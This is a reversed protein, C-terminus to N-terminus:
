RRSPRLLTITRSTSAVTRTAAVFSLTARLTPHRRLLKLARRNLKLTVTKARKFDCAVDALLTKGSKLRVRGRCAATGPCALKIRVVGTASVRLRQAAPLALTSPVVPAPPPLVVPAPDLDNECDVIRDSPDHSVTDVGDGCDIADTVGQKAKVTDAGAGGLVSNGLGGPGGGAVTVADDGDGGMLAAGRSWGLITDNGADGFLSASGGACESSCETVEDDGDGGHVVAGPGSGQVRDADAGGDLQEPGTYSAGYLNDRGDGGSGQQVFTLRDDGPGGDAALSSYIADNGAGGQTDAGYEIRDNGEGGILRGVRENETGLLHDNGPGGDATGRDGVILIDSADGGHLIDPQGPTGQAFIPVSVGPAVDLTMAHGANPTALVFHRRVTLTLPCHATKPDDQVCPADVILGVPAVVDVVLDTATQSLRVQPSETVDATYTLMTAGTPLEHSPPPPAFELRSVAHAAEAGASALACTSLVTLALL